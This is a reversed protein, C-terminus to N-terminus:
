SYNNEKLFLDVPEVDLSDAAGELMNSSIQWLYKKPIPSIAIPLDPNTARVFIGTDFDNTHNKRIQVMRGLYGFVRVGDIPRVIGKPFREVKMHNSEIDLSKCNGVFIGHRGGYNEAGLYIVIHNGTIQVRSAWDPLYGKPENHSLGIHVGQAIGHISNNIIRIDEASRGACVIGQKAVAPLFKEMRQYWTKFSQTGTVVGQNLLIADASKKLYRILDRKSAPHKEPPHKSFYKPWAKLLMKDTSFYVKFDGGNFSANRSKDPSFSVNSVLMRRIARRFRVFKIRDKFVWHRSKRRVRIENDEIQARNVNVLLMGIQHHGPNLQSYRIRVSSKKNDPSNYAVTLCSASREGSAPCALKVSDISISDVDHITLTGNLHEYSGKEGVRGSQLSIDRVVVSKCNRFLFVSERTPALVRTGSSCGQLTIHGKNELIVPSEVKYEGQTICIHADQGNKIAALKAEIDDGPSITITCCGGGTKRDCLVKLADQVTNADKFDDCLGADTKDLPLHTAKFDCLLKDLVAHVRSSTDAPIELQSRVTPPTDGACSPTYTIDESHLNELLADIAEQVTAPLATEEEENVDEWRAVNTADYPIHKARLKCLLTDLVEAVTYYNPNIHELAAPSDTALLNHVTDTVDAECDSTYAVQDATVLNAYFYVPPHDLNNSPDDPDVLTAKVRYDANSLSDPIWHCQAIGDIGTTGTKVVIESNSTTGDSLNGGGVEIKFRVDIGNVPWEGNAVAVRLPQPLPQGPAVEQGDGGAMFMRTMETLPPFAYKRDAEPNPQLVNDVVKGLTLYHHEIGHPTEDTILPDGAKDEAERVEALWYDGAVFKNGDLTLDLRTSALNIRLSSNIHVYGLAEPAKSTSLSVKRDVGETLTKSSLNLTCYGDWRRVFNRSPVTAPYGETLSERDPTFGSALHVGLHRETTEDFFEYVWKEGKFDAPPEVDSGAADKLTYQEAGNESSWKLTIEIPGDADGKVDHVEVRFLYNGVKSEVGLQDVCPDCPDPQITKQLLTVTLEADGKAPNKASQEPDNDPNVPNVSDYLCWKVQAMMQKRTCTDAGHLGKDRLREDMLHTVTREWVDAYLIYDGTPTPASPFDEQHDYEFAPQLTAGEDPRVVTQIGDVHVYGWQLNPPDTDNNIVNRHLPSGNGVVDKLADNLREKLIEVLENWDADTLMRGQQQYVGSYRKEKQHSDRSIETKM